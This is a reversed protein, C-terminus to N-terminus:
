DEYRAYKADMALEHAHEMAATEIADRLKEDADFLAQFADSEARSAENTLLVGDVRTVTLRTVECFGGEAPHCYYPDGYTKAPVYPEADYEVEITLEREIGDREDVHNYTMRSM